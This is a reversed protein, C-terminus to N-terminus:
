LPYSNVWVIRLLIFLIYFISWFTTLIILLIAKATQKQEWFLWFAYGLYMLACIVASVVFLTFFAALGFLNPASGFLHNANSFFLGILSCYILLGLSQLFSVFLLTPRYKIM